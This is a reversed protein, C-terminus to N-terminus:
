EELASELYDHYARRALREPTTNPAIRALVDNEISAALTLLVERVEPDAQEDGVPPVRAM